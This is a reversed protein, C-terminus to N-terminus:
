GFIITKNGSVFVREDFVLNLARALVAKEVDRGRRALEPPSQNHTVPVVDQAIIPGEDLDKTVFHATAGIIKVGREHAQRYPNAGVFAPLFSHHINVIRCVYPDIMGPTLVRMYKALVVYDPAYSDIVERIRAEHGERTLERHDIWHFPIGVRGTLGELVNRNGVVACIEADMENFSCRILLDGVCHPERTVLVVIRKKRRGCLSIDAGPPLTDRLEGTLRSAEIAGELETRMFFQHTDPEVFEDNSVINLGLGALCQTVECILGVRDPCVIRLISREM